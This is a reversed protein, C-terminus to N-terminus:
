LGKSIQTCHRLTRTCILVHAVIMRLQAVEALVSPDELKDLAQELAFNFPVDKVFLDLDADDMNTELLPQPSAYVERAFQTESTGETGM